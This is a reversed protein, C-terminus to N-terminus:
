DQKEIRRSFVAEFYIGNEDRGVPVLLLDMTGLEDHELRLLVQQPAVNPPALFTLAFQEFRQSPPGDRVEILELEVVEGSQAGVCFMSNVSAQFAAKSPYSQVTQEAGESQRPEALSTRSM